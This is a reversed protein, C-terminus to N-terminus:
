LSAAFRSTYIYMLITCDKPYLTGLHYLQTGFKNTMFCAFMTVDGRLIHQMEKSMILWGEIVFSSPIIDQISNVSTQKKAKYTLQLERKTM